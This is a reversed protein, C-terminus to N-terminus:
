NPSVLQILFGTLSYITKFWHQCGWHPWPLKIPICSLRSQECQFQFGSITFGEVNWQIPVLQLYACLPDHCITELMDQNLFVFLCSVEM